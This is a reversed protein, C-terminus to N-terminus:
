FIQVSSKKLEIAQLILDRKKDFVIKLNELEANMVTNILSIRMEIENRTLDLGLGHEKEYKKTEKPILNKIKDLDNNASLKSQQKICSQECESDEDSNILMTAQSLDSFNTTFYDPDLHKDDDQQKVIVQDVSKITLNNDLDNFEKMALKDKASRNILTEFSDGTDSDKVSFTSAISTSTNFTYIATKNHDEFYYIKVTNM